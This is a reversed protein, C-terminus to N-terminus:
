PWGTPLNADSFLSCYTYPNNLGTEALTVVEWGM